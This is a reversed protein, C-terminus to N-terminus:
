RTRHWRVSQRIRTPYSAQPLPPHFEGSWEREDSWSRLMPRPRRRWGRRLWVYKFLNSKTRERDRSAFCVCLCVSTQKLRHSATPRLTKSNLHIQSSSTIKNCNTGTKSGHEVQKQACPIIGTTNRTKIIDDNVKVIRTQRSNSNMSFPPRRVTTRRCFVSHDREFKDMRSDM